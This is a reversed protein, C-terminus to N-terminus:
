LIGQFNLSASMLLPTIYSPIAIQGTKFILLAEDNHQEYDWSFVCSKGASLHAILPVWYARVWTPSLNTLQISGAIGTRLTSVGLNVGLESIATKSGVEPSLASPMFGPSMSREFLTAEGIQVGAIIVTGTSAFLLRWDAAITSDFAIFITRGTTVSVATAADIWSSGGDVSYQPKVSGAVEHLNHGWVAAYDATQATSFSVAIWESSAGTPKWWDYQKWDYANQKEYGSSESSVTVTAGSDEFLNKYGIRGGQIQGGTVIISM